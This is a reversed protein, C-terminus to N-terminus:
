LARDKSLQLHFLSSSNAMRNAAVPLLVPQFSACPSPVTVTRLLVKSNVFNPFGRLKM